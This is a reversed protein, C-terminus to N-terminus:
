RGFEEWYGQLVALILKEVNPRGEVFGDVTDVYLDGDGDQELHQRDLESWAVDVLSRATAIDDADM